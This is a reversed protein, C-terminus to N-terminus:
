KEEIYCFVDSGMVEKYADRMYQQVRDKISERVIVSDHEPLLVEDEMLLKNLVDAVIESDLYQMQVGKDMFFHKAIPQNHSAVSQCVTHGPFNKGSNIGYFKADEPPTEGWARQDDRFEETVQTYARKYTKANLCVMLAHKALNRVPDYSPKNYANRFWEIKGNDIQLFPMNVGYPNYEGGWMDEIWNGVVESDEQMEMEYLLSAHMAKFDLEAVSEGNIKLKSRETQSMVQVGGITNYHRGGFGIKDSFVRKYQQVSVVTQDKSIETNVLKENYKHMYESIKGIGKVGRNSKLSKTERDKIEVVAVRDEEDSVDVGFFLDLVPKKFMTISGITTMDKWDTIGGIYLDVYGLGELIDLLQVMRKHSIKQTNGKYPAFDRPVSLGRARYKLARATNTVLSWIEKRYGIGVASEISDVIFKYKKSENYHINFHTIHTQIDM